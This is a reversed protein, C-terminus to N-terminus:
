LPVGIIVIIGIVLMTIFFGEEGKAVQDDPAPCRNHLNVGIVGVIILLIAAFILLFTQLGTMKFYSILCDGM